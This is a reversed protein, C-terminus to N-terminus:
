VRVKTQRNCRFGRVKTQRNFRFGGVKTQRNFRFVRVKTQRNFRFGRVKTQLNFRFGRVKTQRNFRFGRVKTQRNFRFVRVRTKIISVFLYHFHFGAHVSLTTRLVSAHTQFSCAASVTLCQCWWWRQQTLKRWVTTLRRSHRILSHTVSHVRRESDFM